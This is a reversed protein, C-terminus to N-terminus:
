RKVYRVIALFSSVAGVFAGIACTVGVVQLILTPSVTPWSIESFFVNLRPVFQQSQRIIYSKFGFIIGTSALAGVIGYIMGDIVFPMRIFWGEAGVLDMIELEKRHYYITLKITIFILVSSIIFLFLTIAIGSTRLLNSADKIIEAQDKNFVYWGTKDVNKKDIMTDIFDVNGELSKILSSLNDQSNGYAFAILPFVNKNENNSGNSLEPFKKTFDEQSFELSNIKFSTVYNTKYVFDELDKKKQDELDGRLFLILAPKSDIYKVLKISGYFALGVVSVIFFSLTMVTISAFSLGFNRFIYQFATKVARFFKIM